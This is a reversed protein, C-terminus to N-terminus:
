SIGPTGLYQPGKELPIKIKTKTQGLLLSTINHVLM